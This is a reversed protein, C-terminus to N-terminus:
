FEDEIIEKNSMAGAISGNAVAMAVSRVPTVNDGCAFIGYVTTKQFMDVTVFNQETIECGLQKPIDCHQLMQPKAYIATVTEQSDDNFNITNIKGNEHKISIIEREIIRINHEVLKTTQEETLTSKGNTFLTLDKTWNAIMKSFEYGYDGNGLIGTKEYKIEYGHCYPCHLISIGWCEAFGQMTPMIDKMGTAFILKKAQFVQGSETKIEFGKETKVGSIAIGGHFTVSNYKLVQEKAEHAIQYPTKGDHTIFNHSYPTRKNCPKGSDIVLVQRLARGLSMAASLGAYSGGIIIVDFNTNETM